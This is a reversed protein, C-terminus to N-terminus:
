PNSSTQEAEFNFTATTTADQYAAGTSLPLEV